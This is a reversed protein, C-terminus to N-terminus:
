LCDTEAPPPRWNDHLGDTHAVAEDRAEPLSPACLIARKRRRATRWSVVAERDGRLSTRAAVPESDVLVGDCDFIALAFPAVKEAM